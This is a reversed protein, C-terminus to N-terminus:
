RNSLIPGQGVWNPFRVLSGLFRHLGATSLRDQPQVGTCLWTLLIQAYNQRM